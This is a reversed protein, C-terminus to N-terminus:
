KGSLRYKQFMQYLLYQIKLSLYPSIRKLYYSWKGILGTVVLFDGKTVRKLIKKVAKDPDLSVKLMLNMCKDSYSRNYTNKLGPTSIFSPCVVTVKVGKNKVENFLAESLGVVAFKSASYSSGTPIACLGGASAINIIHGKGRCLMSPLFTHMMYVYGWLNVDMVRHWDDLSSEVFDGMVGMGANNILVDVEGVESIVKQKLAQVQNIDTVDVIYSSCKGGNNKILRSIEDLSQQNIDILVPYDGRAVFSRALVSGIGGGAGTILVIM